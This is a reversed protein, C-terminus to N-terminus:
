SPQEAGISIFLYRSKVVNVRWELRIFQSHYKQVALLDIEKNMTNDIFVFLVNEGM